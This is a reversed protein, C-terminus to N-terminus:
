RSDHRCLHLSRIGWKGIDIGEIKVLRKQLPQLANRMFERLKEFMEFEADQYWQAPVHSHEFEASNQNPSKERQRESQEDIEILASDPLREWHQRGDPVRQKVEEWSADLERSEGAESGAGVFTSAWDPYMRGQFDIHVRDDIATLGVSDNLPRSVDPSITTIV